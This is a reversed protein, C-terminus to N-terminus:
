SKTKLQDILSIIDVLNWREMIKEDSFSFITMGNVKFRKDSPRLDLFEGKHAM